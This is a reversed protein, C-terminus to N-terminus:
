ESRPPESPAERLHVVDGAVVEVLEGDADVLLHGAASLSVARGVLRRDSLEVAVEQGITVLSAALEETLARRGDADTLLLRRPELEDLLAELLRDRDVVMGTADLLCTGGVGPPGPWTLNVGIGVVVAISGADGGPASADAEALVGALKADGVVLDNPWKLAPRVGCLTEVAAAAALAVAATALHLEDVELRERMLISTLLSANPPAEWTRGLRGRGAHQHDAVAVLGAPAGERARGMLYSNTSDIEDFHEIEFGGARMASVRRDTHTHSPEVDVGQM